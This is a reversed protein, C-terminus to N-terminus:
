PLVGKPLGQRWWRGLKIPKHEYLAYLRTDLAAVEGTIAAPVSPGAVRAIIELADRVAIDNQYEYSIGCCEQWASGRRLAGGPGHGCTQTEISEVVSTYRAVLYALGGEGLRVRFHEAWSSFERELAAELAPSVSLEAVTLKTM